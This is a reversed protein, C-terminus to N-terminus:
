RDVDNDANEATQYQIQLAFDHITSISTVIRRHPSTSDLFSLQSRRRLHKHIM